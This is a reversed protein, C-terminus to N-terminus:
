EIRLQMAQVLRKAPHPPSEEPLAEFPVAAAVAGGFAAVPKERRGPLEVVAGVVPLLGAVGVVTLLLELPDELEPAELVGLELPPDNAVVIHVEAV